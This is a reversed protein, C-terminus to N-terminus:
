KLPQDVTVSYGRSKLIAVNEMGQASPPVPPSDSIRVVKDDAAADPLSVLRELFYDVMEVSFANQFSMLRFGTLVGDLDISSFVPCGYIILQGLIKLSAINVSDLVPSNMTMLVYTSELDPILLTEINNNNNLAFDIRVTKLGPVELTTVASNYLWFKGCTELGTIDVESLATNDEMKFVEVHQLDNVSLSVLDTNNQIILENLNSKGSIALHTLGTTGIVEIVTTNPGLEKELQAAVEENTVTGSIFISEKSTEIPLVISNGGSISLVNGDLSLVQKENKVTEAENAYLAYPVSLIQTTGMVTGNFISKIFYDGSAWDISSFSGSIVSGKGVSVSILGAASTTVSFSEKYVPPGDPTDQIIEIELLVPEEALVSGSADRALAQYSFSQPAQPFVQQAIIFFLLVTWLKKM